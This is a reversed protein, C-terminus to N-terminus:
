QTHTQVAQIIVMLKWNATLKEHLIYSNERNIENKGIKKNGTNDDHSCKWEDM